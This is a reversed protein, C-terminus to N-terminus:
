RRNSERRTSAGSSGADLIVPSESCISSQVRPLRMGQYVSHVGEAPGFELVCGLGKLARHCPSGQRPTGSIKAASRSPRHRRRAETNCRGLRGCTKREGFAAGCSLSMGDLFRGAAAPIFAAGTRSSDTDARTKNLGTWSLTQSVAYGVLRPRPRGRVYSFYLLGHANFDSALQAEIKRLRCRQDRHEVYMKRAHGIKLPRIM